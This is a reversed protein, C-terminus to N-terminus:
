TRKEKGTRLVVWGRRDRKQFGFPPIKRVNQLRVLTAYAAKNRTRWFDPDQACLADTFDRRIESWSDPDLTYSWIRAATALGVVPGGTQKLLIVDGERVRGFPPCRVSSFRSEVTKKGCLVYELYPPVFIALHVSRESTTRLTHTLYTGWFGDGQVAERVGPLWASESTCGVGTRVM